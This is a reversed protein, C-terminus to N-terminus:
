YTITTFTRETTIQWIQVRKLSAIEQYRLIGFLNAINITERKQHKTAKRPVNITIYIICHMHLHTFQMSLLSLRQNKSM